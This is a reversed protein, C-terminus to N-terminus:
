TVRAEFNMMTTGGCVYIPGYQTGDDAGPPYYLFTGLNEEPPGAAIFREGTDNEVSARPIATVLLGRGVSSNRQAVERAQVVLLRTLEHTAVSREVGHRIARELRRREDEAISQGAVFFFWQDQGLSHVWGTFHDRANPLWGQGREFFNSVCALYPQFVGGGFDAWGAGVFAHRRGRLSPSRFANTADNVIKQVTAQQDSRAGNLCAGLWEDTSQGQIEALGTYAFALWGCWLVAKNAEDDVLAGTRTNILRRDSVQVVSDNTLLSLVLTM